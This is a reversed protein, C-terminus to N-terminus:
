EAMRLQYRSPTFRRPCHLWRSIPLGFRSTLSFRSAGFRHPVLPARDRDVYTFKRLRRLCSCALPAPGSGFHYRPLSPSSTRETWMTVSGGAFLFSGVRASILVSCPLGTASGSIAPWGHPLSNACRTFSPTFLSLGETASPISLAVNERAFALLSVGPRSSCSIM